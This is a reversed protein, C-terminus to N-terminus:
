NFKIKGNFGSEFLLNVIKFLQENNAGRFNLEQNKDFEVKEGRLLKNIIGASKTITSADKTSGYADNTTYKVFSSPYTFFQTHKSNQVGEHAYADQLAHIGQGLAKDDKNAGGELIKDWGYELGRKSAQEQTMGKSAEDDSMMSHWMNHIDNKQSLDTSSYDIGSRYNTNGLINKIGLSSIGQSIADGILVSNSPHDAYTSSLHAIKDAESHTYGLNRLNKYTINYHVSVAYDGGKDIMLIPNNLSYNYINNKFDKESFADVVFWRGVSPDYMRAGYGYYANSPQIEKGNYLYKNKSTGTTTIALGFPYYNTTQTVTRTTVNLVKDSNPNTPIFSINPYYVGNNKIINRLLMNGM